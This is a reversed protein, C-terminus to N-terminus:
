FGETPRHGLNKNHDLPLSALSSLRRASALCPLQKGRCDMYHLVNQGSGQMDLRQDEVRCYKEAVGKRAEIQYMESQAYRHMIKRCRHHISFCLSRTRAFFHHQFCRHSQCVFRSMPHYAVHRGPCACSPCSALAVLLGYEVCSKARSVSPCLYNQSSEIM